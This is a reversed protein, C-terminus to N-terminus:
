IRLPASVVGPRAPRAFAAAVPGAPGPPALEQRAFAATLQHWLRARRLMAHETGAIEIAAVTTVEAARGAYAWTEATSTIRDGRAHVLLVRRGALQSVPEGDPLWPGLGAVATVLPHGAARLVARGGMSHGILVVPVPGLAAKAEDLMTALDAAPSAAAGNWGRVTFRPRWVVAGAGDLSRSVARAVPIMRLVSGQLASTPATSESTGGHAVIVLGTIEASPRRGHASLLTEGAM